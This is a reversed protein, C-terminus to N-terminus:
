VSVTAEITLRRASPTIAGNAHDGGVSRATNTSSATDTEPSTIANAAMAKVLDGPPGYGPAHGRHEDPCTSIRM